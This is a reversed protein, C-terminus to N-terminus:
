NSGSNGPILEGSEYKTIYERMVEVMDDRNANTIFSLVQNKGPPAILMVIACGPFQQEAGMMAETLRISDTHRNNNNKNSM